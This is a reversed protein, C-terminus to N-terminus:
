KFFLLLKCKLGSKLNEYTQSPHNLFCCLYMTSFEGKNVISSHSLTCGDIVMRHKGELVKGLYWIRTMMFQGEPGHVTDEPDVGVRAEKLIINLNQLTWLKICKKVM